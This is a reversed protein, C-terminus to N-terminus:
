LKAVVCPHEQAKELTAYPYARKADANLSPPNYPQESLCTVVGGNVVIEFGTKAKDLVIDVGEDGVELDKSSTSGLM